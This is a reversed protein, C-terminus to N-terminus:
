KTATLGEFYAALGAIEEANLSGAIQQMVPNERSKNKFAHMATVFDENVWGVISPIGADSGDLQHCSTCTGSLYEGYDKDGVLALIDDAVQPDKSPGSNATEDTSFTKLFAILNSRDNERKLGSFTMKTKKLYAKPKTLFADLEAENWILGEEGAAIMAKSYKAGPTTGAVRGFLNNLHPGTKNKADLGVEHCSRCKKWVKEGKELDQAAVAAPSLCLIILVSFISRIFSM